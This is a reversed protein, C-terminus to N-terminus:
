LCKQQSNANRLQSGSSAALYRCRDVVRVKKGKNTFGLFACESMPAVKSKILNLKLNPKGDHALKAIPARPRRHPKQEEGQVNASPSVECM